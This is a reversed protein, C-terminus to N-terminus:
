DINEEYERALEVDSMDVYISDAHIRTFANVRMEYEILANLMEQRNM